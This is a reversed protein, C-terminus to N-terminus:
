LDNITEALANDYGVSPVVGAEALASPTNSRSTNHLKLQDDCCRNHESM